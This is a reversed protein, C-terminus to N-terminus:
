HTAANPAAFRQGNRRCEIGVFVAWDDYFVAAEINAGMRGDIAGRAIHYHM